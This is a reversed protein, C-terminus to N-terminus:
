FCGCECSGKIASSLKSYMAEDTKLSKRAVVARWFAYRRLIIPLKTM